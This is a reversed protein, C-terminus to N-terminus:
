LNEMLENHYKESEEQYTACFLYFLDSHQYQRMCQFLLGSEFSGVDPVAHDKIM